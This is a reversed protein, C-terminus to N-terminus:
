VVFGPYAPQRKVTGSRDRRAGARRADARAAMKQALLPFEHLLTSFREQDFLFFRMPSAATVTASSPAPDLLGLEGIVDGAGVMGDIVGDSSIEATGSVIVFVEHSQGDYVLVYGPPVAVEDAVSALTRLDDDVLGAFLPVQRLHEVKVDRRAKM